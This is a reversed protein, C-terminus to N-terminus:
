FMELMDNYFGILIEKIINLEEKSIFLGDKYPKLALDLAEELTLPPRYSKPTIAGNFVDAINIYSSEKPFLDKGYYGSGDPLEHHNYVYEAAKILGKNKLIQATLMPHRKIQEIENENLFERELYKDLGLLGLNAYFGALYYETDKVGLREGIKSALLGTRYMKKFIVPKLIKLSNMYDDLFKKEFEYDMKEGKISKM